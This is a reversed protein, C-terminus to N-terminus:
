KAKKADTITTFRLYESRCPINRISYISSKLKEDIKAPLIAASGPRPPMFIRVKMM